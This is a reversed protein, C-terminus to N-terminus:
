WQFDDLSKFEYGKARADKIIRDLAEANDKSVAHLLLIAGNHLGDMVKNYAYETGKQNKVDWDLYAFSWFVTKYGLSKTLALTRESYEGKPPRIYKMNKRFMEYFPRELGLIEEELKQDETVDPMSLHRVTHNGVIHGEEVMRKVFDSHKTLYPGTIFFAAKVQNEKLVDLIKPTYGNEYGEDFTLYLVKEDTHQLYMGNYKQLLQQAAQDITPPKDKQKRYWWSYCKNDYQSFEGNVQKKSDLNVVSKVEDPITSSSVKKDEEVQLKTNSDEQQTNQEKDVTPSVVEVKESENTNKTQESIPQNVNIKTACSTLNLALIMVIAIKTLIKLKV